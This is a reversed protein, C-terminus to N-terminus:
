NPPSPVDQGDDKLISLFARERSTPRSPNSAGEEVLISHSDVYEDFWADGEPSSEYSYSMRMLTVRIRYRGPEPIVLDPFYFYARDKLGGQGSGTMNEAMPHASDAVKGGLQEHLVERSPSILSAVAWIQSLDEFISTESSLRAVIPPYLAASPKARAPPQVALGFM